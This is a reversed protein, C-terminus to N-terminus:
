NLFQEVLELAEQQQTISLENIEGLADSIKRKLVGIYRYQQKLNQAMRNAQRISLEKIFQIHSSVARQLMAVLDDVTTMENIQQQKKEEREIMQRYNYRQSCYDQYRGADMENQINKLIGFFYSLSRRRQDRRIAKLFAEESKAIADLEYSAVCKKARKLTKEDVELSHHTIIWNLRDLKVKQSQDEKKQKRRRYCARQELRQKDSVPSKIAEEPAKQDGLRALRNRMAVYVSIIKELVSKALARWSSFDLIIPGVVKKMDSFASEITGNGKPNAPGVPLIDIDNRDLYARTSSCLNASDHDVVLALPTGWSSRHAEMVKILEQSTESRSISFASHCFSNVDVALELNFKYPVQGIWVTFDSGDVGILGNPISQRLRQYFRPRRRKLHVKYLDNAILIESVKQRSLHIGQERQLKLSFSKLRLRRGTAKLKQAQEVIKRVVEATVKMSKGRGDSLIIPRMKEDFIQNWESLTSIKVSLVWSTDYLSRSEKRM